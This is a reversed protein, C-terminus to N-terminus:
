RKPDQTWTLLVRDLVPPDWEAGPDPRVVLEVRLRVRAGARAAGSSERVVGMPEVHRVAQGADFGGGAGGQIEAGIFTVDVEGHPGDRATVRPLGWERPADAKPVPASYAVFTLTEKLPNVAPPDIVLPPAPNSAVSASRAGFDFGGDGLLWLQDRAVRPALRGRIRGGAVVLLPTDLDVEGRIVVDGGAIVVTWPENREIAADLWSTLTQGTRGPGPLGDGPRWMPPPQVGPELRRLLRGDLEIKGQARLVVLGTGALRCEVDPGLRVSTAEVDRGAFDGAPLDLAGAGGGGAARPFRVSVRGTEQWHAAGDATEDALPALDDRDLFDFAYTEAGEASEDPYRAVNFRVRQIDPVGGSFDRLRVGGPSSARPRLVYESASFGEVAFSRQPTFQILAAPGDARTPGFGNRLFRASQVPVVDEDAAGGPAIPPGGPAPARAFEFDEAFLTRPDLPEDCAVVLVGDHELPPRTATAGPESPRLYLPDTREPSADLFVVDADASVVDFTAVLPRSLAEGEVSRVAAIRPFGGVVLDLRAGPTYAGGGLDERKVGEPTFVLQRGDVTWEGRAPEGTASDILRVSEGTVSTPDIVGSFELSIESNLALPAGTPPAISDLSLSLATDNEPAGAGCATLGSTAAAGLTVAVALARRRLAPSSRTDSM